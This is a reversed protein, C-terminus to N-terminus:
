LIAVFLAVCGERKVQVSSFRKKLESQLTEYDDNLNHM